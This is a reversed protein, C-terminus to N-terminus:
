NIERLLYSVVICNIRDLQLKIERLLVGYDKLKMGTNGCPRLGKMGEFNVQLGGLPHRQAM